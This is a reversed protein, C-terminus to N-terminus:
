EIAELIQKINFDSVINKVERNFANEIIKKHSVSRAMLSISKNTYIDAYNEYQVSQGQPNRIWEMDWVYFIKKNSNFSLMKEATSVTTAIVAGDNGWAESINLVSFNTPICNRQSSECYIIADIEPRIQTLKNIESILYFALQSSGTDPVLFSIKNLNKMTEYIIRRM